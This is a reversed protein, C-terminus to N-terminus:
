FFHCEVKHKRSCLLLSKLLNSQFSYLHLETQWIHRLLVEVVLCIFSAFVLHLCGVGVLFSCGIHFAKFGVGDKHKADEDSYSHALPNFQEQGFLNLSCLDEFSIREV